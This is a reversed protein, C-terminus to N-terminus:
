IRQRYPMVLRYRDTACLPDVSCRPEEARENAASQPRKPDGEVAAKVGPAAALRSPPTSPTLREVQTRVDM